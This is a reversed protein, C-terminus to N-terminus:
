KLVAYGVLVGVAVAGVAIEKWHGRFTDKTKQFWSKKEETKANEM